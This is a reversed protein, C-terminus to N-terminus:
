VVCASNCFCWTRWVFFPPGLDTKRPQGKRFEVTAGRCRSSRLCYTYTSAFVLRLYCKPVTCLCNLYPAWHPYSERDCQSGWQCFHISFFRCFEFSAQFQRLFDDHWWRASFSKKINLLMDALTSSLYSFGECQCFLTTQRLLMFQYLYIGTMKQCQLINM